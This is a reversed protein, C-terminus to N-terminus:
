PMSEILNILVNQPIKDWEEKLAAELEKLNRLNNPHNRIRTELEHWLHEIPNLDPIPKAL